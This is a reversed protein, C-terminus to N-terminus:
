PKRADYDTSNPLGVVNWPKAQFAPRTAIRVTNVYNVSRMKMEATARGVQEYISRKVWDSTSWRDVHNSRATKVGNEMWRRAPTSKEKM